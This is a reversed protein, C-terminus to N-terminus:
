SLDKYQENRIEGVIDSIPTGKSLIKRVQQIDYPRGLDVKLIRATYRIDRRLAEGSVIVKDALETAANEIIDKHSGHYPM